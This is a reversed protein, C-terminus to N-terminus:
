QPTPVKYTQLRKIAKPLDVRLCPGVAGMTVTKGDLETRGADQVLVSVLMESRCLEVCKVLEAEDDVAVTIKPQGQAMYADVNVSNGRDSLVMCTGAAHGAQAGFKGLSLALDKRAFIWIKLEADRDTIETRCDLVMGNLASRLNFELEEQM